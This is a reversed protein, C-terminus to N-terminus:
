KIIRYASNELPFMNMAADTLPIRGEWEGNWRHGRDDIFDFEMRYVDNAVHTIFFEGETAPAVKGVMGGGAYAGVFATGLIQGNSLSLHGQTFQGPRATQDEPAATFRGDPIPENFNAYSKCVFEVMFGDGTTGDSPNLNITYATSGNGYVDGYYKGQALAGQLDLTYDETLTSFRGPVGNIKLPGDYSARVHYKGDDTVLDSTLHYTDDGNDEITLTGATLLGIQKVMGFDDNIKIHTGRVMSPDYPVSSPRGPFITGAPGFILGSPDPVTFPYVGPTPKGDIDYKFFIEFSLIRKNIPFGFDGISSDYLDLQCHMKEKDGVGFYANVSTATFEQDEEISAVKTLGQMAVKGNYTVKHCEGKDDLCTALINYGGNGDDEITVTGSVFNRGDQDTYLNEGIRVYRCSGLLAIGPQDSARLPYVGPTLKINYPDEPPVSWFAFTYYYSNPQFFGNADHGNDSISFSYLHLNEYIPNWNGSAVNGQENFTFVCAKQSVTVEGDCLENNNQYYHLIIKATREADFNSDATFTITGSTPEIEFDRLWDAECTVSVESDPTRDNIKYNFSQTSGAPDISIENQDAFNFSPTVLVPDEDSDCSAMGMSLAAIAVLLSRLKIEM